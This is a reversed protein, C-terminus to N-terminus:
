LNCVQILKMIVHSGSRNRIMACEQCLLGFQVYRVRPNAIRMVVRFNRIFDAILTNSDNANRYQGYISNRWWSTEVEGVCLGYEAYSQM